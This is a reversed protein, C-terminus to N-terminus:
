AAAKQKAALKAKLRDRVPGVRDNQHQWYAYEEAKRTFNKPFGNPVDALKGDKLAKDWQKERMEADTAKTRGSLSPVNVNAKPM